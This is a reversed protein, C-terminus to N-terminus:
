ESIDCPSFNFFTMIFTGRGQTLSRLVTTFGFMKRLPVTADIIKYNDEGLRNKVDLVNGNRGNLESIVGGVHEVLTSVEVKM